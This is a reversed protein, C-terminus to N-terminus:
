RDRGRARAALRGPRRREAHALRRAAVPEGLRGEARGADGLAQVAPRLLAAPVVRAVPAARGRRLARRLRARRPLPDQAPGAGFRLLCYLFFDHLEYPGVLEETKQAIEGDGAPPVLEPRSRPRSSSACCRASRPGRTTRPWGSSSAGCWRRRCAPTSTTCRSTTAPSPPWASRSSPSTARHRGRARGGQQRPGDPGPHARPGPPEPLHRERPGDSRPRHGPHAARLRGPHRDRAARRGGGRRPAARERPHPRHHRLGPMTVALIGPRPLGLLDFTRVCVLLALTSDLGGSLGLVVRQM